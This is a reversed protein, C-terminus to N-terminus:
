MSNEDLKLAYVVGNADGFYIIGNDIFPTSLIAGLDLIKKEAEKFDEGYLEFGTKFEDKDNYVVSYNKKSGSTRFIEKLKGKSQGIQYLKGNFCGFYIDNEHQIGSGYVRMNLPYSSIESGDIASLSCFRHSDSTGVYIKDDIVLPTAIVWSGKEKYNWVGRGSESNLAYINYDRSGFIVSNNYLTAGKQIEGQPFYADGVTKFKWILHGNEANLSYFYGDFSGIFVKNDHLLPTAHVIGDTKYKWILKGNKPNLSYVYGDGSGVVLKGNEIVPSSLFYDWIDKRQEGETKFVWQLESNQKNIAYIAGDTSNIIVTNQYLLPRSKVEGETKFKWKLQGKEKGLVYLCSDNSGIYINSDDVVPSSYVRDETRFEWVLSTQGYLSSSLHTLLLLKCIKIM